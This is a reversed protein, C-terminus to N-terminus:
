KEELKAESDELESSMKAANTKMKKNETELHSCREKFRELEEQM